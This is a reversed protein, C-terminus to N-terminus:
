GTYVAGDGIPMLAKKVLFLLEDDVSARHEKALKVIQHALAPNYERVVDITLKM